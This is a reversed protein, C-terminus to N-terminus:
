YLWIPATGPDFECDGPRTEWRAYRSTSSYNVITDDLSEAVRCGVYEALAKMMAENYAREAEQMGAEDFTTDSDPTALGPYIPRSASSASISTDPIPYASISGAYGTSDAGNRVGLYTPVSPEIGSFIRQSPTAKTLSFNTFTLGVDDLPETLNAWKEAAMACINGAIDIDLGLSAPSIDSLGAKLTDLIGTMSSFTALPSTMLDNLCSLDGVAAPAAIAAEARRVSAEIAERIAASIGDVDEAACREDQIDVTWDALTATPIAAALVAAAAIRTARGTAAKRTEHIM